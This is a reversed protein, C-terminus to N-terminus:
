CLLKDALRILEPQLGGQGPTLTLIYSIESRVPIM